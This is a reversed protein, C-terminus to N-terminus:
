SDVMFKALILYISTSLTFLMRYISEIYEQIFKILLLMVCCKFVEHRKLIQIMKDPWISLWFTEHKYACWLLLFLLLLFFVVVNLLNITHLNNLHVARIPNGIVHILKCAIKNLLMNAIGYCLSFLNAIAHRWHCM